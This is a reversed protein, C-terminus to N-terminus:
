GEEEQYLETITGGVATVIREVTLVGPNKVKGTCIRWVQQREMGAVEAAANITFGKRKLLAQLRDSLTM